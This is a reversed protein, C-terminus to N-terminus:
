KTTKGASTEWYSFPMGLDELVRCGTFGLQSLREGGGWQFRHEPPVRSFTDHWARDIEWDKRKYAMWASMKANPGISTICETFVWYMYPGVWQSKPRYPAGDRGGHDILFDSAAKLGDACRKMETADGIQRAYLFQGLLAELVYLNGLPRHCGGEVHDGCLIDFHGKNKKLMALYWGTSDQLAQDWEAPVKEGYKALAFAMYNVGAAVRPHYVFCESGEQHTREVRKMNPGFGAFSYYVFPAGFGPIPKTSHKALFAAMRSGAKLYRKVAAEEGPVTRLHLVVRALTRLNEGTQDASRRMKSGGSGKDELLNGFKAVLENASSLTSGDECQWISIMYDMADKMLWELFRARDDARAARLAAAGFTAGGIGMELHEGVKGTSVAYEQLFKAYTEEALPDYTGPLRLQTKSMVCGFLMDRTFLAKGVRYGIATRPLTEGPAKLYFDDCGVSGGLVSKGAPTIDMTVYYYGPKLKLDALSISIPLETTKDPPCDVPLKGSVSATPVSLGGKKVRTWNPGSKGFIRFVDHFTFVASEGASLPRSKGTTIWAKGKLESTNAELLTAWTPDGFRLKVKAGNEPVSEPQYAISLLELGDIFFTIHESDRYHGESIWFGIYTVCNMKSVPKFLVVVQQWGGATPSPKHTTKIKVSRSRLEPRIQYGRNPSAGPTHNVVRIRFGLANYASWDTAEKLKLLIGPYGVPYLGENDHDVKVDWRLTKRSGKRTRGLLRCSSEPGDTRWSGSEILHDLSMRKGVKAEYGAPAPVKDRPSAAKGMSACLILAAAACLARKM